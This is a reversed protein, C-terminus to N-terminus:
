RCINAASKLKANAHTAFENPNLFGDDDTDASRHHHEAHGGMRSVKRYEEPDLKGNHDTDLRSFCPEVGEVLIVFWTQKRALETALEKPNLFGDNDFDGEQFHEKGHHRAQVDLPLFEELSLKGTRDLDVIAMAREVIPM